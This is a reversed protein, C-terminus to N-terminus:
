LVAAKKAMWHCSDATPACTDAHGTDLTPGAGGWEGAGPLSEGLRERTEEEPSLPVRGGRGAPGKGLSM